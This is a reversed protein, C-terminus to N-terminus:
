TDGGGGGWEEELLDGGGGGCLTEGGGGDVPESLEVDLEDSELLLASIIPTVTPTPNNRSAVIMM